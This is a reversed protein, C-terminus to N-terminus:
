LSFNCDCAHLFIEHIHRIGPNERVNEKGFAKDQQVRDLGATGNGTKADAAFNAKAPSSEIGAGDSTCTGEMLAVTM